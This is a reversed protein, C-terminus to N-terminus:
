VGPITSRTLRTSQIQHDLGAIASWPVVLACETRIELLREHRMTRSFLAGSLSVPAASPRVVATTPTVVAAAACARCVGRARTPTRGGAVLVAPARVAAASVLRGAGSVGGCWRIFTGEAEVDGARIAAGSEGGRRRRCWGDRVIHCPGLRRRGRESAAAANVAARGAATGGWM